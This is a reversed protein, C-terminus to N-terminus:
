LYTIPNKPNYAASHIWDNINLASAEHPGNCARGTEIRRLSVDGAFDGQCIFQENELM